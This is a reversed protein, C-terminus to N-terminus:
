YRRAELIDSIGGADIVRVLEFGASDLLKRFERQTRERGGPTLALMTMDVLYGMADESGTTLPFVIEAVTRRRSRQASQDLQGTTAPRDFDLVAVELALQPEIM